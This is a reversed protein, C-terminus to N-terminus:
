SSYKRELRLANGFSVQKHQKILELSDSKTHIGEPTNSRRRRRRNSDLEFHADPVLPSLLSQHLSPFLLSGPATAATLASQSLLRRVSM